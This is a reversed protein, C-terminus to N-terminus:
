FRISLGCSVIKALPYVSQDLGANLLGNSTYSPDYGPYKTFTLLNTASVYFRLEDMGIKEVIVRPLSYGFQVMKVRLFSADFLFRTSPDQNHNPDNFTLRPVDTNKNDPTWANLLDTSFNYDDSGRNIRWTNADFMKNGYTGQLFLTLDFQKYSANFNLGYSFKPFPSGSYVADSNNIVGDGNEDLYKVDGPQANPQLLNGDKDTWNDVEEQNQFLGVSQKLFFAGIPYGERAATVAGTAARTPATGYITQGLYGLQIVKNSVTSINGTIRYQFGNNSVPSNYTVNMEFGKNEVKGTNVLPSGGGTSPPIPVNLLLNDTKNVFYDGTLSLNQFLDMDLGGNLSTTSEWKIGPNTYGGIAAGSIYNEGFLYGLKTNYGVQPIYQYNGGPQNGLVGYSGRLKLNSITSKLPEFFSENSIRWAISASPFVGFRNTSGFRSSGDRRVNATLYYRDDHNYILRALMSLMDWQYASGGADISYGTNADIVRMQNNPFGKVAGSLSRFRDEEFTYGVVGNISNKGFKNNYMLTNEVLWHTSESRSESLSAYNNYVNTSMYYTPTYNYGHGNWNKFGVNLKYTFHKLLEFQVYVDANLNGNNAKNESLKSLGYANYGQTPYYSPVGGYGGDNASDYIPIIPQAVLLGQVLWDVINRQYFQTYGVNEGFTFVGKKQQGAFSLVGKKYGSTVAIGKQNIFSGSIRYTSGDNGGSISAYTNSIPAPSYFTNQWDTGKGLSSPSMLNEFPTLNATEHLANDLTAYQEANAVPIFNTPFQISYSSNLEVNVEGKKGRKTTIIIVGNAARSGYIAASAADKLVQMSEVDGANIDNLSGPAGDIIVLPENNGFTNPGRVKINVGAGPAGSSLTVSVGPTIGELATAINPLVANKSLQKVDVISISSSLDSKKQQGYGVVIVDELEKRDEVLIIDINTQSKVVVEQSKMGIFSFILTSNPNKLILTYRGQADSITGNNTQKEIINVGPLPIGQENSVIGTITKTEIAPDMVPVEAMTKPCVMIFVAILFMILEVVLIKSKPNSQASLRKKRM